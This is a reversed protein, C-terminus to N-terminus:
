CSSPAATRASSATSSCSPRASSDRDCRRALRGRSLIARGFRPALNRLQLWQGAFNTTLSAARPDALMRRVQRTLEDSDSLRGEEAVELLEDDPISSWLFFSLRSALTLDSVRYPTDPAVGEPPAEIRFLFQPSVLLRRLALEIGDNFDGDRRGAQYFDLLVDVDDDTGQGRYARRALTSLITRACSAEGDADSHGSSTARSPTCSFLRDRSPTTGRGVSDFPGSITMSNVFPMSGGPGGTNGSIRPNPFPERVQEVLAGPNRHFAVGVEHPGATVPIRADFTTGRADELGFLEVRTRDITVELPHPEDLGRPRTLIVRIEYEADQPFFHEVSMGGRTGFPLGDIRDHQQLDQANRYVESQPTPPPSGVVMRSITKAAALYRELLSESIRLVGGINDFGYSSDDAPLFDVTDVDLALLDRIANQYESRNLRHFTATRGPDPQAAAVRDLGGELWAVFADQTAEDPRPRGAPPMVGARVKRVVREWEAADAALDTLDMTDFAIGSTRLQAVLPSPPADDGDANVIADNHCTM